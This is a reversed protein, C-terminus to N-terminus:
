WSWEFTANPFGRTSYLGLITDRDIAVSYESFPQGETSSLQALIEDKSLKAIGEVQLSHVFYQPGEEIAIFVALDNSKGKYNDVVRHTVTVDRFGNSLYLSRIAD